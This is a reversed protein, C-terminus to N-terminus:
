SRAAALETLNRSRVGTKPFMGFTNRLGDVGTCSRRRRAAAGGGMARPGSLDARTLPCHPPLPISCPNLLAQGHCETMGPAPGPIRTTPSCALRPHGSRRAIVCSSVDSRVSISATASSRKSTKSRAARFDRDHLRRLEGQAQRIQLRRLQRDNHRWWRGGPACTDCARAMSATSRRRQSGDFHAASSRLDTLAVPRSLLGPSTAARAEDGRLKSARWARWTM